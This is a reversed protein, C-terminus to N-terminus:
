HNSFVHMQGDYRVSYIDGGLEADRAWAEFDFYYVLNNPIGNLMDTQEAWDRAWDELSKFVGQYNNEVVEIGREVDCEYEMAALFADGHKEIANAALSIEELCLKSVKISGFDESDQIEWDADNGVIANVADLLDSEDQAADIWEGKGTELSAVFIKAM